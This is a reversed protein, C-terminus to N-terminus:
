ISQIKRSKTAGGCRAQSLTFASGGTRITLSRFGHRLYWAKQSM